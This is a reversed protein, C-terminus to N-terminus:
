NNVLHINSTDIEKSIFVKKESELLLEKGASQASLHNVDITLPEPAVRESATLLSEGVDSMTISDLEPFNAADSAKSREDPNLLLGEQPAITYDPASVASGRHLEPESLTVGLSDLEWDSSIANQELPRTALAQEGLGAACSDATAVIEVSKEVANATEEFSGHPQILVVMGIQSLIKQYKQAALQDLNKKLSLAGGKFLADIKQDNMKFLQAAKKKVDALVFGEAIDGTFIVDFM